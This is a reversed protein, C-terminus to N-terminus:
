KNGDSKYTQQFDEWKVTKYKDDGFYHLLVNLFDVQLYGAQIHLRQFKEDLYVTTPYQMKNDLLSSALEHVTRINPDPNPNTFSHTNFTVPEKQEANLKVAYFNENMYKVIVPDSFTTADMRKCWGCWHTYVDIFIKKPKKKNMEVAQEFTMWTIKDTNGSKENGNNTQSFLLLPLIMLVIYTFYFRKM